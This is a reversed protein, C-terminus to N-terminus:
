GNSKQYEWSIEVYKWYIVNITWKINLQTDTVFFQTGSSQHPIIYAGFASSPGDSHAALPQWPAAHPTTLSAQSQMCVGTGM